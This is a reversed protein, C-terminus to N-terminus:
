LSANRIENLTQEDRQKQYRVEQLTEQLLRTLNDRDVKISLVLREFPNLDTTTFFEKAATPVEFEVFISAM